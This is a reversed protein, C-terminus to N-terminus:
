RAELTVISSVTATGNKPTVPKAPIPQGAVRWTLRCASQNELFKVHISLLQNPARDALLYEGLDTLIVDGLAGLTACSECPLVPRGLLRGYPAAVDGGIAPVYYQLGFAFIQPFVDANVLWAISSPDAPARLRAMMKSANTATFTTASQGGEKNVVIAAKSPLLGSVSSQGVVIADETVFTIENSFAISVAEVAAPSDLELEGTLYWLAMLKGTALDLGRFKPKTVSPNNGETVWFAQVGGLRQGDARSTEDFATLKAGFGKVIPFRRVRSLLQGTRYSRELIEAAFDQQVMFGGDSPLSENAGSPGATLKRLRQDVVRTEGAARVANLQEALSRFPRDGERERMDRVIATVAAAEAAADQAKREAAIRDLRAAAPNVPPKASRAAPRTVTDM